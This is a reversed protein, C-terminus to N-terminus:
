LLQLPAIAKTRDPIGKDNDTVIANNPNSTGNSIDKLKSPMSEVVHIDYLSDTLYASGSSGRGGFQLRYSVGAKLKHLIVFFGDTVAPSEGPSINYVTNLSKLFPNSESIRLTFVPSEIRYDKVLDIADTAEKGAVSKAISKFESAKNGPAIVSIRLYIGGSSDNDERAARRIQEEDMLTNGNFTEGISRTSTLIPVFIATREAILLSNKGTKNYFLDVDKVKPDLNATFRYYDINGRLFVIDGRVATRDPDGSHLWNSWEVVWDCYSKGRFNRDPEVIEYNKNSSM